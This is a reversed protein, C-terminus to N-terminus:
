HQAMRRRQVEDKFFNREFRRFSDVRVESGLVDKMRALTETELQRMKDVGDKIFDPHIKSKRDALEKVLANATALVRISTDEDVRWTKLLYQSASKYFKQQFDQDTYIDAYNMTYIVADTYSDQLEETQTPNFRRKELDEQRKKAENQVMTQMPAQDKRVQDIVVQVGFLLLAGTVFGTAMWRIQDTKRKKMLDVPKKSEATSQSLTAVKGDVAERIHEEMSASIENWKAPEVLKVVEKEVAVHVEKIISAKKNIMDDLLDREMKQLRKSMEMRVEEHRAESSKAIHSKEQELKDKLTSKQVEFDKLLHNKKAETDRVDMTLQAQKEQLVRVSEELAKNKDASAQLAGRLEKLQTEEKNLLEKVRAEEAALLEKIRKDEQAIREKIRTDESALLENIRKEETAYLAKLRADETDHIEKTRTAEAQLLEKIRAEEQHIKEQLASEKQTVDQLQQRSSALKTDTEQLDNLVKTLTEKDVKLKEQLEKSQLQSFELIRTAEDRATKLLRDAEQQAQLRGSDIAENKIKGAALTAEAILDESTVRSKEKLNHVYVDVEERLEQAMNRAEMLLTRGQNQFDALIADAEKHAEAIRTQYFYEAQTQAERAKQYIAQVRKEAQTEGELIIQAAKKKADHLIKEGQFPAMNPPPMAITDELVPGEEAAPEEEAVTGEIHETQLDISLFYESRGLQIKDTAVVNVPTGQVIKTGNVFTGNSSNKDEIWIQNWRRSVVIHVRSIATDNLPIDCDISRGITFSDKNVERSLTQDKRQITVTFTNM